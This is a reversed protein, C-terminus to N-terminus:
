GQRLFEKVKQILVAKGDGKTLYADARGREARFTGHERFLPWGLTRLYIHKAM